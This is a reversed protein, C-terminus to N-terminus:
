VSPIKVVVTTGGDVKSEIDLLGGHVDVLRKAIILGLGSGQQEHLRREFQMYGGVDQIQGPSMGRGHDTVTVVFWDEVRACKVLVRTGQKSFKFANDVVNTVIRRFNESSIAGGGDALETVLDAERRHEASIRTAVIKLIMQLDTTRESRFEAKKDKDAAAIEIQAYVLFNEILTHLRTAAKHIDTAMQGIEKRDIREYDERLIDAFGLIAVLPTRLEHPLSLAINSRLESLRSEAKQVVLEQKQLRTQVATLLDNVSFPKLLYDDAGIGMAHRVHSYDTMVGTMLIVPISNTVPDQRIKELTAYGDMGDMKVDCLILDPRRGRALELGELGNSAEFVEFGEAGLATKAIFRLSEEDDIILVKRM